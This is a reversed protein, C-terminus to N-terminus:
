KVVRMSSRAVASLASTVREMPWQGPRLLRLLGAASDIYGRRVSPALRSFEGRSGFVECEARYIASALDFSAASIRLETPWDRMDAADRM